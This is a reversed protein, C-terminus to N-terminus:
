ENGDEQFLDDESSQKVKVKKKKISKRQKKTTADSHEKGVAEVAKVGEADAKRAFEVAHQYESYGEEEQAKHYYARAKWYHYASQDDGSKAGAVEAAGISKNARQLTQTTTVPGCGSIFVISMVAMWLLFPMGNRSNM